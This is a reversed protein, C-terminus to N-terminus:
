FFIGKKIREQRMIAFNVCDTFSIRQDAFKQLIEVAQLEANHDPRLIRIMKSAYINHAREAAFLNGARTPGLLTFVENLVFNTTFCTERQGRIREWAATAQTHYQDHSLYRALFAGTDIFIM